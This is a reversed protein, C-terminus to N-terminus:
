FLFYFKQSFLEFIQQILLSSLLSSLVSSSGIEDWSSLAGRLSIISCFEGDNLAETCLLVM